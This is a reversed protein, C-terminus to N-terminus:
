KSAINETTIERGGSKIFGDRWLDANDGVIWDSKVLTRNKNDIEIEFIPEESTISYLKLKDNELVINFNKEPSSVIDKIDQNIEKIESWKLNLPNNKIFDKKPVVNINIDKYKLNPEKGLVLSTKMQWSGNNRVVGINTYNDLPYNLKPDVTEKEKNISEEIVKLGDKGAIDVINVSSDAINSDILRTRYYKNSSNVTESSILSYYDTSVFTLEFPIKSNYIETGSEVLNIGNKEKIEHKTLKGTYEDNNWSETYKLIGFNDKLSIFIDNILYAKMTYQNKEINDYYFLYTEYRTTTQENDNEEQVKVTFTSCIKGNYAEINGKELKDSYKKYIKEPVKESVKNFFYKEGESSLFIRNQSLKTIEQYLQGESDSIVIIEVFEKDTIKTYDIEPYNSNFYNKTNLYKSEFKPKVSYKNGFEFLDSSIYIKSLEKNEDSNIGETDELEWTGELAVKDIKPANISSTIDFDEKVSCSTLFQIIIFLLIFIKSKKLTM